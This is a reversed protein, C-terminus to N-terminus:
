SNVESILELLAKSTAELDEVKAQAKAKAIKAILVSDFGDDKLASKIDKINENINEIERYLEVLSDFQKLVNENM